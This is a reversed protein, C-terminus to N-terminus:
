HLDQEQEISEIRELLETRDRDTGAMEFKLLIPVGYQEHIVDASKCYTGQLKWIQRGSACVGLMNHNYQELFSVVHKPVQGFGDTYTILIYKGMSPEYDEVRVSDYREIKACFREVNHTKSAYVIVV